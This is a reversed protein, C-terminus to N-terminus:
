IKQRGKKKKGEIQEGERGGEEGEGRRKRNNEIGTDRRNAPLTRPQSSETKKVEETKKNKIM